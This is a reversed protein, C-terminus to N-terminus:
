RLCLIGGIGKLKTLLRRLKSPKKYIIRSLLIYLSILEDDSYMSTSVNHFMLNRYLTIGGYSIEYLGNKYYREKIAYKM